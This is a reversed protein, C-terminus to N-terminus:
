LSYKLHDTFNVALKEKQKIQSMDTEYVRRSVPATPTISCYRTSELLCVLELLKLRILNQKM